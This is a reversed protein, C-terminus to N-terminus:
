GHTGPGEDGRRGEKKGGADEWSAKDIMGSSIGSGEEERLLLPEPTHAQRFNEIYM